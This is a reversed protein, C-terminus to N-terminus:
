TAAVVIVIFSNNLKVEPRPGAKPFPEVKLCNKSAENADRERWVWLTSQKDTRGHKRDMDHNHRHVRQALRADCVDAGLRSRGAM